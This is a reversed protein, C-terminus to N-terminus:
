FRYLATRWDFLMRRRYRCVIHVEVMPSLIWSARVCSWFPRSFGLLTGLVSQLALGLPVLHVRFCLQPATDKERRRPKVYPTCPEANCMEVRGLVRM